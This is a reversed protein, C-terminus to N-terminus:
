DQKLFKQARDLYLSGNTFESIKNQWEKQDDERKDNCSLCYNLYAYLIQNSKSLDYQAFDKELRRSVRSFHEKYLDINMELLEIKQQMALYNDQKKDLLKEAEKLYNEAISLIDIRINKNLFLSYDLYKHVIRIASIYNKNKLYNSLPKRMYSFNMSYKKLADEVPFKTSFGLERFLINGHADTIFYYPIAKVQFQNALARNHDLNIKVPVYNKLLEKVDENGWVEIDMKVCPRCWTAWFDILMPRNTAISIKQATEYDRIWGEQAFNNATILLLFLTIKLTFNM